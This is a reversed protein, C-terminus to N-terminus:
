TAAHAPRSSLAGDCLLAAYFATAQSQAVAAGAHVVVPM